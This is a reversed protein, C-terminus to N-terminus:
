RRFAPAPPVGLPPCGCAGGLRHAVRQHRSRQRLRCRALRFPHLFVCGGGRTALAEPPESLGVADFLALQFSRCNAAPRRPSWRWGGRFGSAFRRIDRRVRWDSKPAMLVPHFEHHGTDGHHPDRPPPRRRVGNLAGGRWGLLLAFITVPRRAPWWGYSEVGDLEVWWHGYTRGLRADYRKAVLWPLSRPAPTRRFSLAAASLYEVVRGARRVARQAV